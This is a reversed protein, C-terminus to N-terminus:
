KANWTVAGYSIGTQMGQNDRGFTISTGESREVAKVVEEKQSKSSLEALLTRAQQLTEALEELNMVTTEREDDEDPSEDTRGRQVEALAREVVAVETETSSGAAEISNHQSEIARRLEETM